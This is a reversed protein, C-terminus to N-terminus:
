AFSVLLDIFEQYTKTNLISQVYKSDSIYETVFNFIDKFIPRDDENIALMLVLNVRAGRWDIGGPCIAVAIATKPSSMSLPHPLAINAYASPSIAEREFLKEKFDKETFGQAELADAMHNIADTYDSYPPNYFFLGEHFLFKLKNEMVTKMQEKKIRDIIEAILQIEKNGFYNSILAVPTSPSPVIPITSIIFDYNRCCPLDVPSTIIESVLLSEEFTTRIRNALHLHDSYYQPCLLVVKVKEKLAKQEEILVGIHLAIYAIEDESLTVDRMHGIVHAIFVSVDYIYPYSNKISLLQPNKLNINNELRIMMNKLHLAFRIMFDKNNLNLYFTRRVQHQIIELLERTDADVIQDLSSLTIQNLNEAVIRTMLLVSLDQLDNDALTIGFRELLQERIQYMIVSIHAPVEPRDSALPLAYGENSQFCREMTIGIHLIFNQLSYDDMFYHNQLLVDQVISRITKLDFNPLYNQILDLSCCFDKTDEYILDALMKKKSKENGEITAINNKTKLTLHFKGLEPKLKSLENNLTLPSICLKEALADLDAAQNQLLLKKYIYRKRSEQTQPIDSASANLVGALRGKDSIQFGERSSLVLDKHEANINAIYTKISRVSCNLHLSIAYSTTWDKQTSLYQLVAIEKEKM